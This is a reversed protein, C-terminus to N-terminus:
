VTSGGEGEGLPLSSCDDTSSSTCCLAPGLLLAAGLAAEISRVGWDELRAVLARVWQAMESGGRGWPRTKEQSFSLSSKVDDPSSYLQFSGLWSFLVWSLACPM